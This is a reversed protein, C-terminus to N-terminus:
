ALLFNSVQQTLACYENAPLQEFFELPKHVLQALLIVCFESDAAPLASFNGATTYQKKANAFDVGKLTTLDFEISEYDKGEFTYTEKFKYEM